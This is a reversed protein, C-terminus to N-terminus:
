ATGTDSGVPPEAGRGPAALAQLWAVLHQRLPPPGLVVAHDLLGLVWSRFAGVNTVELRVVVSGDPHREAVSGAGVYGEVEGALVHDVWVQAVQSEDQGLHWPGAALLSAPDLDGAPTFDGPPGAEEIPGMRDVRFTRRDGQDRDRGVVYWWGRRFAVAEPELTRRRDRYAFAVPVRARIAEYLVPLAPLSPLAAVAAQADRDGPGLKALVDRGTPDDLHVGAVALNLATQEEPTLGLDPLYYDEPRIRYGLRAGDGIPEVAVVVGEERLTRKDREFAQRRAEGGEPYGVVTDAIETLTLPRPTDLLVLVLDTLRELRDVREM